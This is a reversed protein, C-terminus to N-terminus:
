GLRKEFARPAIALSVAITVVGPIGAVAIRTGATAAVATAFRRRRRAFCTLARRLRSTFNAVAAVGAAFVRVAAFFPEAVLVMAALVAHDAALAERQVMRSAPGGAAAAPTSGAPWATLRAVVVEVFRGAANEDRAAKKKPPMAALDEPLSDRGAQRPSPEGSIRQRVGGSRPRARRRDARVIGGFVAIDPTGLLCCIRQLNLM